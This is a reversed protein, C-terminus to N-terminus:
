GGKGPVSQQCIAAFKESTAFKPPRQSLNFLVKKRDDNAFFCFPFENDSTFPFDSPDEAYQLHEAAKRCEEQHKIEDGNPCLEGDCM